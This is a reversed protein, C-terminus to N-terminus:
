LRNKKMRILIGIVCMIGGALSDLVMARSDGSFYMIIGTILIIIGLLMVAIGVAYFPSQGTDERKEIKPETPVDMHRFFANVREKEDDPASFVASGIWMGLITVIINLGITLSNYGQRLWYDLSAEIVIRESYIRLLIFNLVVLGIGSLTGALVGTIAGRSNINRFFLGGLLPLMIAPGLAGFAKVMIDYLNFGSIYNIGIAFLITIGGILATNIRGWLILRNEDADPRIIKGYFDKTLVGSLVNYDSGLTSLTASFMGAVMLGMLGAPLLKLSVAVYAYTSGDPMDSLEPLLVRATMAPIFFIVPGITALIGMILAVKRADKETAVCNYKQVFGWTANYSLCVMICFMIWDFVGYPPSLIHFFGDPTKAILGGVGGVAYISLPFLILVALCLIIFQVFDTVLVAWQGGLLTYLIMIIGVLFICVELTFWSQGVAVALFVATSYIKISNDILRLPIGTWVFIQHVMGNYRQEMFGLPTMVRARRWRSAFFLYALIMAPAVVWCLTIALFGYKFALQSYVVFTLASFSAMWLSIGALWWPVAAGAAFYDKAQKIFRSFFIGISVIIAFYAIIVIYDLIHLSEGYQM